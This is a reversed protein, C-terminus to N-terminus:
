IKPNLFIKKIMKWLKGKKGTFRDAYKNCCDEPKPYIYDDHIGEPGSYSEGYKERYRMECYNPGPGDLMNLHKIPPHNIIYHGCNWCCDRAM